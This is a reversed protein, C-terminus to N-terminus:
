DSPADEDDVIEIPEGIGKYKFIAKLVDGPTSSTNSQLQGLVVAEVNGDENICDSVYRVFDDYSRPISQLIEIINMDTGIEQQSRGSLSKIM